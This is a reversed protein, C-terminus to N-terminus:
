VRNDASINAAHDVRSGNNGREGFDAFIDPNAREAHHPGMDFEAVIAHEMRVHHKFTVRGETAAILKEGESRDTPFGLIQFVKIFWSVEFHTVVIDEAFIGRHMPAGVFAQGGSDARVIQQQAVRMDCMVALEAVM